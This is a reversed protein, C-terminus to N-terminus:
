DQPIPTLFRTQGQRKKISVGAADGADQNSVEPLQGMKEVFLLRTQGLLVVDSPALDVEGEVRRNNLRTGNRSSLDRLKWGRPTRYVEAHERSCREDKLVIQCNPARGLIYRSDGSLPFVDGFGDERRVVLYASPEISM